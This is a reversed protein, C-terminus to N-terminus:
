QFQNALIPGDLIAGMIRQIDTDTLATTADAMGDGGGDQASKTAGNSAFCAGTVSGAWSKQGLHAAAEPM